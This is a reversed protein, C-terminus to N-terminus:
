IMDTYQITHAFVGHRAYKDILLTYGVETSWSSVGERVNRHVLMVLMLLMPMLFMVLIVLVLILFVWSCFFVRFLLGYLQSASWIWITKLGKLVKLTVLKWGQGQTWVKWRDIHLVNWPKIIKAPKKRTTPVNQNMPFEAIPVNQVYSKILIM